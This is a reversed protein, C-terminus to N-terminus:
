NILVISFTVVKNSRGGTVMIFLFNELDGIDRLLNCSKKRMEILNIWHLRVNLLVLLWVNM